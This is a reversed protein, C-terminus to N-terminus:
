RRARVEDHVQASGHAGRLHDSSNPPRNRPARAWTTSCFYPRMASDDFDYKQKKVSESYYVLGPRWSSNGGRRRGDEAHRRARGKSRALAPECSTSCTTVHKPTKPWTTTSCSDAHVQLRPSQLARLLRRWRACSRRTTSSMATTLACATRPTSRRACRATTTRLYPVPDISPKQLNFM